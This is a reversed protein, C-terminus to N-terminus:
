LKKEIGCSVCPLAMFLTVGSETKELIFYIRTKRSAARAGCGGVLLAGFSGALGIHALNPRKQALIRIKIPRLLLKPVWIVSVDCSNCISDLDSDSQLDSSRLSM